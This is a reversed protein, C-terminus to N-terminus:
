IHPYFSVTPVPMAIEMQSLNPVADPMPSVIHNDALSQELGLTMQSCGQQSTVQPMQCIGSVIRLVQMLEWFTSPTPTAATMNTQPKVVAPVKLETMMYKMDRECFWDAADEWGPPMLKDLRMQKQRFGEMRHQVTKSNTGIVWGPEDDECLKGLDTDREDDDIDEGDEEDKSSALNSLSDGITNLMEGFSTEPKTTPSWAKAVNRMHEQEQIIATEADQVRKRAVATERDVDNEIWEETEEISSFHTERRKEVSLKKESRLIHWAALVQVKGAELGSKGINAQHCRQTSKKKLKGYTGVPLPSLNKKPANVTTEQTSRTTPSSIPHQMIHVVHLCAADKIDLNTPTM